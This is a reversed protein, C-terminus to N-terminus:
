ELSLLKASVVQSNAELQKVMMAIDGTVNSIDASITVNAQGLVPLAQSITLISINMEAIKNLIASLAGPQHSVTFAFVAKRVDSQNEVDFVYDKYKYYTSRSIDYAKCVDSVNDYKGRLLDKKANAVKEFYDPLVKKSIILYGDSM